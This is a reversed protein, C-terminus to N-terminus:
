HYYKFISGDGKQKKKVKYKGENNSFILFFRTVM